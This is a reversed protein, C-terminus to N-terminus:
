MQDTEDSSKPNSRPMFYVSRRDENRTVAEGWIVHRPSLQSRLEQVKAAQVQFLNVAEKTRNAKAAISLAVLDRTAVMEDLGSRLFAVRDRALKEPGALLADAETLLKYAPAMVEDTYLYPLIVTSARTLVRDVKGEALLQQFKGDPAPYRYESTVKQWYSFYEAIKPGAQGFASLYEDMIQEKTLEANTSLRAVLYYNLGQTGWFGLISDMDMGVMGNAYAFKIFQYTEELPLYPANAGVNWWNPRLFLQSGTDAWGKWLEQDYYSPVVGVVLKAEVRREKPPPSKYSSYAYTCLIVDPNIKQLRQSVINWFKIYRATLNARANWIDEPSQGAPIDWACTEPSTDFGSGDNPCVNWYLPAGAQEYERAIEEVIAPNSLRLKAYRAQIVPPPISAPPVAFYDPHSKSFKDWWTGFAHGFRIDGRRGAQHNEAWAIAEQEMERLAPTGTRTHAYDLGLRLRRQLLAPQYTTDQFRVQLGARKPVHTGLEGPWLWRVGLEEELIRNLAWLSPFSRPKTRNTSADAGEDNGAIVISNGESRLRYTEPPLKTPDLGSDVARISRGLFIRSTEPPLAREASEKIIPINAGTAQQVSKTFYVAAEQLSPPATEPLVLVSMSKGARVLVVGPPEEAAVEPTRQCSVNSATLFTLSLWYITSSIKM